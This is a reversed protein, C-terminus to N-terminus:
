QFMAKIYPLGVLGCMPGGEEIRVPRETEGIGHGAKKKRGRRTMATSSVPSWPDFSRSWVGNEHVEQSATAAAPVCFTSQQGSNQMRQFDDSRPSVYM